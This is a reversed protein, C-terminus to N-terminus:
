IRFFVFHASLSLFIFPILPLKKQKTILFSFCAFIGILTLFTGIYNIPLFNCCGAIIIIDVKGIKNNFFFLGSLIIFIFIMNLPQDGLLILCLFCLLNIFDIEMYLYDQFSLAFLSLLILIHKIQM